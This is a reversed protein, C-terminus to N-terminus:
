GNWILVTVRCADDMDALNDNLIGELCSLAKPIYIQMCLLLPKGPSETTFFGSPFAPSVLSIPKILLIGPLLFHCGSWYEQRSFEMSLLAQCAVTWPTVFLQVHSLM